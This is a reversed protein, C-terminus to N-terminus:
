TTRCLKRKRSSKLQPAMDSCHGRGEVPLRAIRSSSSPSASPYRFGVMTGPDNYLSRLINYSGVCFRLSQLSVGVYMGYNVLRELGLAFAALETLRLGWLGSSLCSRAGKFAESSM